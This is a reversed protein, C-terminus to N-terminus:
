IFFIKDLDNLTVFSKTIQNPGSDLSEQLKQCLLNEYRKQIESNSLGNLLEQVWDPAHVQAVTTKGAKGNRQIEWHGSGKKLANDLRFSDTFNQKAKFEANSKQIQELKSSINKKESNSIPEDVKTYEKSNTIKENCIKEELQQIISYNPFKKKLKLYFDKSNM